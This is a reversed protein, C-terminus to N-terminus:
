QVVLMVVAILLLVAGSLKDASISVKSGVFRGVELGILTMMLSVIGFTLAALGLPVDLMGLGFGVTLNDLSLAVALLLGQAGAKRPVAEAEDNTDAPKLLLYVGLVVLVGVGIYKAFNGAIQAMESGIFLGIVPMLAEFLGFILATRLQESRKMNMTGLAVSALANNMGMAVGLFVLQWIM